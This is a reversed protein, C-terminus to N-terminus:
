KPLYKQQYSQKLRHYTDIYGQEMGMEIVLESYLVLEDLDKIQKDKSTPPILKKIGNPLSDETLMSFLNEQVEFFWHPCNYYNGSGDNFTVMTSNCKIFESQEKTFRYLYEKSM